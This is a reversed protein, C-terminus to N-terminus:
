FHLKDPDLSGYGGRRVLRRAEDLTLDVRPSLLRWQANCPPNAFYARVEGTVVNVVTGQEIPHRGSEPLTSWDVRPM